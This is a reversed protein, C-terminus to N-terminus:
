MTEHRRVTAALLSLFLISATLRLTTITGLMRRALRLRVSSALSAGSALVSSTCRIWSKSLIKSPRLPGSAVSSDDGDSAGVGMSTCTVGDLGASAGSMSSVSLESESMSASVGVTDVAGGSGSGAFSLVDSVVTEGADVGVASEGAEDRVPVLLFLLGRSGVRSVEPPSLAELGTSMLTFFTLCFSATASRVSATEGVVVVAGTVALAAMRLFRSTWWAGMWRDMDSTAMFASFRWKTGVTRPSSNKCFTISPSRSSTRCFILSPRILTLQVSRRPQFASMNATALFSKTIILSSIAAPHSMLAWFSRPSVASYLAAADPDISDACHRISAPASTCLRSSSPREGMMMAANAPSRVIHASKSLRPASRLSRSRRVSLVGSMKAVYARCSSVTSSSSCRPASTLAASAKPQVASMSAACTPSSFITRM